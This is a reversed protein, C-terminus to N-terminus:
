PKAPSASAGACRFLTCRREIRHRCMPCTDLSAAPCAPDSCLTHCCPVLCCNAPREFCVVCEQWYAGESVEQAFMKRALQKGAKKGEEEGAKKGEAEGEAKGEEWGKSYEEKAKKQVRSDIEATIQSLKRKARNGQVAAAQALELAKQKTTCEEEKAAVERRLQTLTHTMLSLEQQCSRLQTEGGVMGALGDEMERNREEREVVLLEREVVRQEEEMMRKEREMLVEERLSKRCDAAADSRAGGAAIARLLIVSAELSAAALQPALNGALVASTLCEAVQLSFGSTALVVKLLGGSMKAEGSVGMRGLALAEAGAWAKTGAWLQEVTGEWQCVSDEARAKEGEPDGARRGMGTEGDEKGADSAAAAASQPGGAGPTRSRQAKDDRAIAGTQARADSHQALRLRLTSQTQRTSKLEEEMRSRTKRVSKLEEEMGELEGKLRDRRAEEVPRQLEEM